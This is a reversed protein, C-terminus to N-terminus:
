KWYAEIDSLKQIPVIDIDSKMLSKMELAEAYNIEKPVFMVPVSNKIAVYTKGKVGGVSTINGEVDIAGTIVMEGHKNPEGKQKLMVEYATAAGGSDGEINALDFKMLDSFKWLEKITYHANVGTGYLSTERSITKGHYSRGEIQHLDKSAVVEEVKEVTPPYGDISVITTGLLDDLEDDLEDNPKQPLAVIDFEYGYQIPLNAENSGAIYAPLAVYLLSGRIQETDPFQLIGPPDEQSEYPLGEQKPEEFEQLLGGYRVKLRLYDFLRSVEKKHVSPIYVSNQYQTRFLQQGSELKAPLAYTRSEVRIFYPIILVAVWIAIISLFIRKRKTKRRRTTKDITKVAESNM